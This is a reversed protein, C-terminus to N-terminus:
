GMLTIEKIDDNEVLAYMTHGAFSDETDEFFLEMKYCIDGNEQEKTELNASQLFIISAFEEKSLMPLDDSERWANAGEFMEEAIRLQWWSEGKEELKKLYTRIGDLHAKILKKHPCPPNRPKGRAQQQILAIAKELFEIREEIDACPSEELEKLMELHEDLAYGEKCLAVYKKDVFEKRDEEAVDESLGFLKNGNEIMRDTLDDLLTELRRVEAPLPLNHIQANEVIIQVYQLMQALITFFKTDDRMLEDPLWLDKLAGYITLLPETVQVCKDAISTEPHNWFTITQKCAEVFSEQEIYQWYINQDAIPAPSSEKLTQLKDQLEELYAQKEVAVPPTRKKMYGELPSIPHKEVPTGLPAICLSMDVKRGWIRAKLDKPTKYGYFWFKIVHSWFSINEQLSVQLIGAIPELLRFKWTVENGDIM